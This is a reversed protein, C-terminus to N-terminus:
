ILCVFLDEFVWFYDEEFAKVILHWRAEVSRDLGLLCISYLPSGLDLCRLKMISGLTLLLLLLALSVHELCTSM